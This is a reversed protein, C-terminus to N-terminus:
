WSRGSLLFGGWHPVAMVRARHGMYNLIVSNIEISHGVVTYVWNVVLCPRVFGGGIYIHSVVMVKASHVIVKFVSTHLRQKLLFAPSEVSESGKLDPTM